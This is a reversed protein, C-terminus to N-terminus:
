RLIPIEVSGCKGMSIPRLSDDRELEIHRTIAEPIQTFWRQFFPGARSFGQMRIFDIRWTGNDQNFAAQLGDLVDCAVDTEPRATSSRRVTLVSLTM